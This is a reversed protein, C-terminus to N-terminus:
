AAKVLQWTANSREDTTKSVLGDATMARLERGIENLRGRNTTDPMDDMLDTALHHVTLPTSSAALEALILARLDM